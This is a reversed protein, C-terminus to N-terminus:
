RRTKVQRLTRTRVYFLLALGASVLAIAGKSGGQRQNEDEEGDGAQSIPIATFSSLGIATPDGSCSLNFRGSWATPVLAVANSVSTGATVTTSYQAANGTIPDLRPVSLVTPTPGLTVTITSSSNPSDTMVFHWYGLEDRCIAQNAPDLTSPSVEIFKYGTPAPDDASVTQPLMLGLGLIALAIMVFTLRHDKKM